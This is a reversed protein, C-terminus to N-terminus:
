AWNRSTKSFPSITFRANWVLAQPPHRSSLPSCHHLSDLESGYDDHERSHEAGALVGAPLLLAGLVAMTALLPRPASGLLHTINM